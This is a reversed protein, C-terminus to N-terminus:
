ISTLRRIPRGLSSELERLIAESALRLLESRARKRRARILESSSVNGHRVHASVTGLRRYDAETTRLKEHFALWQSSESGTSKIAQRITEVARYAFVFADDGPESQAAHYDRLALRYLPRRRVAVALSVAERIVTNRPDDIAWLEAHGFRPSTFGMMTAQWVVDRAEVWGTARARFVTGGLLAYAAAVLWFLSEGEDRTKFSHATSRDPSWFGLGHGIVEMTAGLRHRPDLRIEDANFFALERPELEGFVYVTSRGEEIRSGSRHRENGIRRIHWRGHRVPPSQEGGEIEGRRLRKRLPLGPRSDSDKLLSARDLWDAAEVATVEDIGRRKM